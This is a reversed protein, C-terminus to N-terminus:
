GRGADDQEKLIARVSLGLPTLRYTGPFASSQEVLGLDGMKLLTRRQTSSNVLQDGQYMQNVGCLGRWQADTLGAAIQEPTKM